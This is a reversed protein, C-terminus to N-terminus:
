SSTPQSKLSYHPRSPIYSSIDSEDEIETEEDSALPSSFRRRKTQRKRSSKEGTTSQCRRKAPHSDNEDSFGESEEEDDDTEAEKDHCRDGKPKGAAPGV